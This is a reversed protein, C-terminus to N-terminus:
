PLEMMNRHEAWADAEEDDVDGPDEYRHSLLVLRKKTRTLAVYRINEEELTGSKLSDELVVVLDHELGKARHVTSCTVRAGDAGDGFLGDVRARLEAVSMLGDCLAEVTAVKDEVAEILADVDLDGRGHARAEVRACEEVAWADLRRLLDSIKGSGGALQEVLALVQAGIDRGQVEAPVGARLIELCSKM